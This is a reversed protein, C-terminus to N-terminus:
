SIKLLKELKSVLINKTKCLVSNCHIDWQLRNKLTQKHYYDFKLYINLLKIVNYM